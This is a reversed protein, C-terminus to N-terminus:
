HSFGSTTTPVDRIVLPDSSNPQDTIALTLTGSIGVQMNTILGVIIKAYGTIHQYPQFRIYSGVGLIYPDVLRAPKKKGNRVADVIKGLETRKYPIPFPLNNAM